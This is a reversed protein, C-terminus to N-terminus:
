GESGSRTVSSCAGCKGGQFIGVMYRCDKTEPCQGGLTQTRLVRDQRLAEAWDVNDDDGAAGRRTRAPAGVGFGGALGHTGGSKQATSKQLASGWAVGKTRDYCQSHDMPFDAEIMGSGPKVRVETPPRFTKKGDVRNPHQLVLLRKHAPLAPKVFVNYSAIIPDDDPPSAADIDMKHNDYSCDYTLQPRERKEIHFVLLSLPHSAEPFDIPVCIELSSITPSSLWFIELGATSLQM